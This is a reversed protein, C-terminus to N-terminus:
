SVCSKSFMTNLSHMYTNAVICIVCKYNGLSLQCYTKQDMDVPQDKVLQVGTHGGAVRTEQTVLLSRLIEGGPCTEILGLERIDIPM